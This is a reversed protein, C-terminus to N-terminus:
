INICKLTFIHVGNEEKHDTILYKADKSCIVEWEAYKLSYNEISTGKNATICDFRVNKNEENEYIKRSWSSTGLQTIPKQDKFCKIFFEIMEDSVNIYRYTEKAWIPAAAIFKELLIGYENKRNKQQYKRVNKYENGSWAKIAYLIEQAENENIGPMIANIYDNFDYKCPETQIGGNKVIEDQINKSEDSVQIKSQYKNQFPLKHASEITSYDNRIYNYIDKSEEFQDKVVSKFDVESFYEKNDRVFYPLSDSKELREKNESVWQKFGEPVDKVTNESEKKEPEEGRLIALDEDDQEEDSKLISTMYCRCQPHWGTFKFDKPYKGALKDCIDVIKIIKGKKDKTTHNGSTHVEFGVVFDLNQWRNYDATDYAMNIETRALRMANKKPSAYVGPQAKKSQPIQAYINKDDYEAITATPNQLYQTLYKSIEPLTIQM